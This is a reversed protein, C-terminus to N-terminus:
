EKGLWKEGARKREHFVRISFELDRLKLVTPIPFEKTIRQKIQFPHTIDRQYEIEQASQPSSTCAESSQGCSGLYQLGQLSSRAALHYSLDQSCQPAM